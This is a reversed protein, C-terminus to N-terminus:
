RWLELDVPLLAPDGHRRWTRCGPAGAISPLQDLPRQGVLEAGPRGVLQARVAHAARDHQGYRARQRHRATTASLLADMASAVSLPRRTSTASSSYMSASSRRWARSS